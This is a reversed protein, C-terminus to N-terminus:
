VYCLEPVLTEYGCTEIEKLPSKSCLTQTMMKLARMYENLFSLYELHDFQKIEFIGALIM